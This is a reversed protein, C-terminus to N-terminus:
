ILKSFDGDLSGGVFAHKAGTANPLTNCINKARLLMECLRVSSAIQHVLDHEVALDGRALAFFRVFGNM